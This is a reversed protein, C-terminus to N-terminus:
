AAAGGKTKHTHNARGTDTWRDGALDRRLQADLRSVYEAFRQVSPLIRLEDEDGEILTILRALGLELEARYQSRFVRQAWQDPTYGLGWTDILAQVEPSDTM